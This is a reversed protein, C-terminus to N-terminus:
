RIGCCFTLLHQCSASVENTSPPQDNSEAQLAVQHWRYCVAHAVIRCCSRHPCRLTAAAANTSAEVAAAALEKAAEVAEHASMHQPSPNAGGVAVPQFCISTLKIGVSCVLVLLSFDSSNQTAQRITQAHDSELVTVMSSELDTAFVGAVVLLLCQACWGM